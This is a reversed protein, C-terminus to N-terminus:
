FIAVLLAIILGILVLLVGLTLWSGATILAAWAPWCPRPNRGIEPASEVPEAPHRHEM